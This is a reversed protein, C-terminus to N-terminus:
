RINTADNRAEPQRREFGLRAHGCRGEGREFDLRTGESCGVSLGRRAM